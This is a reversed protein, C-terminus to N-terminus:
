SVGIVLCFGENTQLLVLFSSVGDVRGIGLECIVPKIIGACIFLVDCMDSSVDFSESECYKILLMSGDRVRLKDFPFRCIHRQM